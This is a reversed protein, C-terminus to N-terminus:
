QKRAKLGYFIGTIGFIISLGFVAKYVLPIAQFSINQGTEMLHPLTEDHHEHSSAADKNVDHGGSLFAESIAITATKRHGREDDVRLTWEGAADPLFTYQGYKDTRGLQFAKTDGPAFVEVKADTMPASKSFGAWLTVAPVHETFEVHIAHAMTTGVLALLLFASLIFSKVM